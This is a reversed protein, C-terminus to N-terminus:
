AAGPAAEPPEVIKRWRDRAAQEGAIGPLEAALARLRNAKDPDLEETASQTLQSAWRARWDGNSEPPATGVATGKRPLPRDARNLWNILRRRTPQKGNVECWSLMKGFEFRVNLPRYVNREQLGSLFEDDCQNSGPSRPGGRSAEREREPEPEPKPKPMAHSLCPEPLACATRVAPAHRARRPRKYLKETREREDKTLRTLNPMKGDAFLSGARALKRHVMDDAHESWDHVILRFETHVDLWDSNCLGLVLENAEGKWDLQYAIDENSLKGIDGRPAERATLHWLSELIGVAGWREIGLARALRGIKSHTIAERKL